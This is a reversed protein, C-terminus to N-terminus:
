HNQDTKESMKRIVLFIIMATANLLTWPIILVLSQALSMEYDIYRGGTMQGYEDIGDWYVVAPNILVTYIISAIIGALFIAGLILLSKKM